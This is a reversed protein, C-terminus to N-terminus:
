SFLFNHYIFVSWWYLATIKSRVKKDGVHDGLNFSDYPPLSVGGQRTTTFAQITKAVTWNPKIADM